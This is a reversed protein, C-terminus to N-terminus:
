CGMRVVKPVTYCHNLNQIILDVWTVAVYNEEYNKLM